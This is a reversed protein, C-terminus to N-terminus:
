PGHAAVGDHFIDLQGRAVEFAEGSPPLDAVHLHQLADQLGRVNIAPSLPVNLQQNLKVPLQLWRAVEGTFVFRAFCHPNRCEYYVETVLESLQRKHTGFAAKGCNPCTIHLKM